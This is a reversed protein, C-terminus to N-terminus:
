KFDSKNNKLLLKIKLLNKLNYNILHFKKKKIKILNNLKNIILLYKKM